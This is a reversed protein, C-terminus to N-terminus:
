FCDLSERVIETLKMDHVVSEVFTDTYTFIRSEEVYPSSVLELLFDDSTTTFFLQCNFTKAATVLTDCFGSINCHHSGTDIREMILAKDQNAIINCLLFVLRDNIGHQLLYSITEAGPAIDSLENNIEIMTDTFYVQRGKSLHDYWHVMEVNTTFERSVKIPQEHSCCKATLLTDLIAPTESDIAICNILSFGMITTLQSENAYSLSRIHGGNFYLAVQPSMSLPNITSM